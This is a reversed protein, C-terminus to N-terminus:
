VARVMLKLWGRSSSVVSRYWAEPMMCCAMSPVRSCSVDRLGPLGAGRGGLGAELPAGVASCMAEAATSMKAWSVAAPLVM